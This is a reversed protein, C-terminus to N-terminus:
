SAHYVILRLPHTNGFSIITRKSLLHSSPPPEGNGLRIHQEVQIFTIFLAYSLFITNGNVNSCAGEKLQKRLQVGEEVWLVFGM